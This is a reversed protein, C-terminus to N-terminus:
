NWCGRNAWGLRGVCKPRRLAWLKECIRLISMSSRVCKPWGLEGCLNECTRLFSMSGRLIWILCLKETKESRIFDVNTSSLKNVGVVM